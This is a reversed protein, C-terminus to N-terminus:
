SRRSGAGKALEFGYLGGVALSIPLTLWFQFRNRGAELGLQIRASVPGFPV